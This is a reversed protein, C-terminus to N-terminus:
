QVLMVTVCQYLILVFDLECVCMCVSISLSITGFCQRHSFAMQNVFM